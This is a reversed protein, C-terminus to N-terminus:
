VLECNSISCDNGLRLSYTLFYEIVMSTLSLVCIKDGGVDLKEDTVRFIVAVATTLLGRM